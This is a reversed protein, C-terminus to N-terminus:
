CEHFFLRVLFELIEIYIVVSVSFFPVSCVQGVICAARFWLFYKCWSIVFILTVAAIAICALTDALAELMM